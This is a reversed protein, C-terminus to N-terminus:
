RCVGPSGWQGVLRLYDVADVVGDPEQSPGSVDGVCKETCGGDSIMALLDLADVNGDPVGAGGPGAIDADCLPACFGRACVVGDGEYLGGVKACEEVTLLACTADPLCCAGLQDFQYALTFLMDAGFAGLAITLPTHTSLQIDGVGNIAILIPERGKYKALEPDPADLRQETRETFTIVGFDHFDGGRGPVGDDPDLPPAVAVQSGDIFLNIGPLDTTAFSATIALSTQGNPLPSRNEVTAPLSVTTRLRAILGTLVRLGDNEDFPPLTLEVTPMPSLPASVPHVSCETTRCATDPGLHAGGMMNCTAVTLTDCSGDALCCSGIGCYSSSCITGIGLFVGDANECMGQYTDVCIGEAFCCAGTCVSTACTTGDGQYTGGVAACIFEQPASICSGDDLCCAGAHASRASLSLIIVPLLLAITRPTTM